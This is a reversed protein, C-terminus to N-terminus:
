LPVVEQGTDKKTFPSSPASFTSKTTRFSPLNSQPIETDLHVPSDEVKAIYRETVKSPGTLSLRSIDVSSRNSTEMKSSANVAPPSPKPKAFSPRYRESSESGANSGYVNSGKIDAMGPM